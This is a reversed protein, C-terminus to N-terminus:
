SVFWKGIPSNEVTSVTVPMGWLSTGLTAVGNETQEFNCVKRSTTQLSVLVVDIEEWCAM